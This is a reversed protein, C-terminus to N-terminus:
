EADSVGYYADFVRRAIPVAYEGGSGGDEVIVTVQLPKDTNYTYGTFWAHSDSQSNYEASGTKGAVQYSLGSLKTATGEEVVAIMMEQLIAAEEDSILQGYTEPAFHKITRGETSEVSEICYPIMMEGDNSIMATLMALHIPTMQTTGQGIVTQVLSKDDTEGTVEANSAKNPLSIPLKQNFLLSELTKSFSYRNLELGMNAFSSNCSKAFSKKFDVEGHNAGHYCRIQGGDYSISGNCIFHYDEYRSGNERIYELATVIKFTSGPPYLGQTARNLLVSSSEDAILEDWIEVIENPNYDPKSVMALIKGTTPETVIVAGDYIGLARYAEEQLSTIFTTRVLDGQYKQNDMRDHLKQNLSSNSAILYINALGEVGARGNSAYGVAHSFVEGYPYVRIEKGGVTQTTALVKGDASLIDGRITKAELIEQRQKNYQNSIVETSDYTIYHGLFVLMSVFIGGYIGALGGIRRNDPIRIKSQAEGEEEDDEEGETEPQEYELIGQSPQMSIGQIIAFMMMTSLVSSGGYSVLPFTVGTMPIFKCNGGVTLFVQFIYAVGIGLATYKTFRDQRRMAILIIELFLNLALLFLAIGFIVGYEECISAYIFDQEVYPITTPTGGDIGLGFWGGTGIAFLSHAIQYGRDEIRSWPDLWVAVRVRVHSFLFYAAVCAAVAAIGGLGAYRKKGTAVFLITFYVIFYILASGLDTSAVLLLVHIGALVATVFVQLFSQSKAFFGALFVVFSIKVFESAQFNVGALSVSLKAGNVVSGSVYVAGLLLVGIIAYLWRGKRLVKHFRLFCPAVLVVLMAILAFAFQKVSKQYSLRLMCIFGISFLMAIHNLILRNSRPYIMRMLVLFAFICVLQVIPLFLYDLERRSSLLVLCGTMHHIATLVNQLVLLFSNRRSEEKALLLYSIAVYLTLNFALIYKSLEIMANIM